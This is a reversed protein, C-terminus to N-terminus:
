LVPEGSATVWARVMLSCKLGSPVGNGKAMPVKCLAEKAVHDHALTTRGSRVKGPRKECQRRQASATQSEPCEGKFIVDCKDHCM